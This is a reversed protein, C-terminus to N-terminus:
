TLRMAHKVDTLVEAAVERTRATGDEIIREVEAPDNRFRAYRERVPRLYENLQEAFDGKDQVCGLAGSRCGAAVGDLRAPNVFKWLAFLPCIEPHGPDGRRVKQPDTIMSRVKKTTTEEDDGILIANDYSKSM